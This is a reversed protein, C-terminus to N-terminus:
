LNKESKKYGEIFEKIFTVLVGLCLSLFIGVILKIFNGTKESESIISTDYQIFTDINNLKLNVLTKIAQNETELKVYEPYYTDINSVKIPYIYKLFNNEVTANKDLSLSNTIVANEELEKKLVPLRGDSYVKRDEIYKFINENYYEKLIELYTTLISYSVEDNLDERKNIKVIVKYSNPIVESKEDEENVRRPILKLIETNLLFQRKTNPNERNIKVKKEYLEKLNKNEFLKEIYKNELLIQNPKKQPYYVRGGLYSELEVYNLSYEITLINNKDFIIRKGIYLCTIIIGIISVIVFLRINKLFINIVDYISIDEEQFNDEVEALNNKM